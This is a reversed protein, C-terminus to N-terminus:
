DVLMLATLPPACSKGLRSRLHLSAEYLLSDRQQCIGVQIITQQSSDPVNSSDLQKAALRLYIIVSPANAYIFVNNGVIILSLAPHLPTSAFFVAHAFVEGRGYRRMLGRACHSALKRMSMDFLADLAVEIGASSM